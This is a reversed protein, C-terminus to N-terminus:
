VEPLHDGGWIYTVIRCLREHPIPIGFVREMDLLRSPYSFCFLVALLITVGACAYRGDINSVYDPIGLAKMVRSIDKKEFRFSAEFQLEDFDLLPNRDPDIESPERCVPDCALTLAVLHSLYLPPIMALFGVMNLVFYGLLMERTNAM